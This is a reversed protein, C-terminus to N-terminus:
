AVFLMERYKPLTWMDDPMVAELDDVHRRVHDMHPKVDTYYYLAREALDMTEATELMDKLHHLNKRVYYIDGVLKSFMAKRDDVAGIPLAMGEDNALERLIELSGGVEVQFTYASPLVQTNVTEQLTRAEIDIVKNYLELWIAHRATL